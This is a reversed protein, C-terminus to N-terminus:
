ARGSFLSGAFSFASSNETGSVVVVPVACFAKGAGPERSHALSSFRSGFYWLSGFGVGRILWCPKDNRPYPTGMSLAALYAM